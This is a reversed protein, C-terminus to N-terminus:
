VHNMKLCGTIERSGLTIFIVILSIRAHRNNNAAIFVILKSCNIKRHSFIKIEVDLWNVEDAVVACEM